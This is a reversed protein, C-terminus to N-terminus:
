WRRPSQIQQSLRAALGSYHLDKQWCLHRRTWFWSVHLFKWDIVAFRLWDWSTFWDWLSSRFFWDRVDTLADWPTSPAKSKPRDKPLWRDFSLSSAFCGFRCTRWQRAITDWSTDLFYHNRQVRESRDINKTFGFSGLRYRQCRTWCRWNRIHRVIPSWVKKTPPFLRRCCNVVPATQFESLEHTPAIRSIPMESLTMIEAERLLLRRYEAGSNHVNEVIGPTRVSM